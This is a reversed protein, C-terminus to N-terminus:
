LQFLFWTPDIRAVHPQLNLPCLKVGVRIRHDDTSFILKGIVSFVHKEVGIHNDLHQRIGGFRIIPAFFESMVTLDSRQFLIHQNRLMVSLNFFKHLRRIPSPYQILRIFMIRFYNKFRDSTSQSEIFHIVFNESGNLDRRSSVFYGPFENGRFIDNMATSVDTKWRYHSRIPCTGDLSQQHSKYTMLNHSALNELGDPLEKPLKGDEKEIIVVDLFQQKVSLDKELEVEYGTDSFFDKLTLGFLRHWGITTEEKLNM